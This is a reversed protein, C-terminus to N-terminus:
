QGIESPPYLIGWTRGLLKEDTTVPLFIDHHIHHYYPSTVTQGGSSFPVSILYHKNHHDHYM